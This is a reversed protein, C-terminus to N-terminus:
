KFCSTTFRIIDDSFSNKLALIIFYFTKINDKIQIIISFYSSSIKKTVCQNYYHDCTIMLGMQLQISPLQPMICMSSNNNNNNSNNNNFKRTNNISHKFIKLNIILKLM